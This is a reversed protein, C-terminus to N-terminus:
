LIGLDRLLERDFMAAVLKKDTSLVAELSTLGSRYKTGQASLRIVDGIHKRRAEALLHAHLFTPLMRSPPSCAPLIHTHLFASLICTSFRGRRRLTTPNEALFYSRFSFASM